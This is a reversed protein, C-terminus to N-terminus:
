LRGMHMFTWCDSVRSWKVLEEGWKLVRDAFVRQTPDLADLSYDASVVDNDLTGVKKSRNGEAGAALKRAVEEWDLRLDVEKKTNASVATRESAHDWGKQNVWQQVGRLQQMELEIEKEEGFFDNADDSDECVNLVGAPFASQETNRIYQEEVYWPAQESDIWKRFLRQVEEDGLDM